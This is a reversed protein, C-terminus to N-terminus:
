LAVPAANRNGGGSGAAGHGCLLRPAASECTAPDHAKRWGGTASSRGAGAQTESGAQTAEAHELVASLIEHYGRHVQHLLDIPLRMGQSVEPPPTTLQVELEGLFLAFQDLLTCTEAITM